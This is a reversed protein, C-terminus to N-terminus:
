NSGKIKIPIGAVVLCVEDAIEAVKQNLTGALDRFQRALRNEPVIGMGVENSVIILVPGKVDKLRNLTDIFKQISEEPLLHGPEATQSLLLVNSLWLTLCDLLICAYKDKISVLVESISVQEERTDWEKGREVKHKEVRDRMEDDLAEATAIYLKGGKVGSAEKLAFSSKGSRAGGIIFSIKMLHAGFSYNSSRKLFCFGWGEIFFAPSLLMVKVRVDEERSPM